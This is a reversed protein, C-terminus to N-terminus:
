DKDDFLSRLKKTIQAPGARLMLGHWCGAAQSVWFRSHGLPTQKAWDVIGQSDFILLFLLALAARPPFGSASSTHLGDQLASAIMERELDSTESRM